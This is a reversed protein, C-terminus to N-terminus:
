YIIVNWLARFFALILIWLIISELVSLIFAKATVNEFWKKNEFSLPYLLNSLSKYLGTLYNNKLRLIYQSNLNNFNFRNDYGYLDINETNLKNKIYVSKIFSEKDYFVIGKKENFKVNKLLFYPTNRTSVYDINPKAFFTFIVGFCFIIIFIWWLARFWRRGYGNVLHNFRNPFTNIFDISEREIISDYFKSSYMFEGWLQKDTKLFNIALEDYLHKLSKLSELIQKYNPKSNDLKKLILEEDYTAIHQNLYTRNNKSKLFKHFIVYLIGTYLTDFIVTSFIFFFIFVIIFFAYDIIDKVNIKLNFLLFILLIFFSFILVAYKWDEIRDEFIGILPRNIQKDFKVNRFETKDVKSNLFACNKLNCNEFIVNDLIRNRFDGKTEETLGIFFIRGSGKQPNEFKINKILGRNSDILGDFNAFGGIDIVFDGELEYPKFVLDEIELKKDGNRNKIGGGDLFRCDKFELKKCKINDIRLNGEFTCNTFIIKKSKLNFNSLKKSLYKTMEKDFKKNEFTINSSFIKNLIDKYKYGKKYELIINKKM